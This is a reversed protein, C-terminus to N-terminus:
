AVMAQLRGVADIQRALLYIVGVFCGALMWLFVLLTRRPSVRELPIQVPELVKFVPTREQVKITAQEFQRALETYVTQAITLEAELRQKEMTATQVVQYKHRDNYQFVNFQATEYRRRAETLRQTYFRLDLRAKETRYNTVYRTLYDLARQAVVAAVRADPMTASIGIVGSRTDLRATVREGIERVLEQQWGSLHLPQGAQPKRQVNRSEKDTGFWAALSWGSDPEPALFQGLTMRQGKGTTVSQDVLYLMFPTSQLVSPYLDPRIADAAENDDIDIGGLGAVSALRKFLDGQGGALEPMIRGEARFEPQIVLAIGVGAGAFLAITYLLLARGQWVLRVLKEATFDSWHLPKVRTAAPATTTNM